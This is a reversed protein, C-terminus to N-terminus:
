TDLHYSNYEASILIVDEGEQVLLSESEYLGSFGLCLITGNLGRRLENKVFHSLPVCIDMSVYLKDPSKKNMQKAKEKQEQKNQKKSHQQYCSGKM